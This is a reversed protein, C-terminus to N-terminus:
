PKVAEKHIYQLLCIGHTNRTTSQIICFFLPMAANMLETHTTGVDCITALGQYNESVMTNLAIIKGKGPNQIVIVSCMCVQYGRANSVLILVITANTDNVSRDWCAM